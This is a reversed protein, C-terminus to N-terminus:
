IGRERFTLDGFCFPCPTYVRGDITIPAYERHYPMGLGNSSMKLRRIQHEIEEYKFFPPKTPHIIQCDPKHYHMGGRKDIWVKM